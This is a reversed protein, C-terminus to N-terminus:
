TRLVVQLRDTSWRAGKAPARAVVVAVVAVVLAEVLSDVVARQRDLDLDPLDDPSATM